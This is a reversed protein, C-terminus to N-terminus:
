IEDIWKSDPEQAGEERNRQIQKSWHEGIYQSTALLDSLGDKSKLGYVCFSCVKKVFDSDIFDDISPPLDSRFYRHNSPFVFLSPFCAATLSFGYVTYHIGCGIYRDCISDVPMGFDCPSITINVHRENKARYVDNPSLKGKEAVLSRVKPPFYIIYPKIFDPVDVTGNSMVCMEKVFGERRLVEVKEVAKKLIPSLLPEGGLIRIMRIKGKPHKRIEACLHDIHHENMFLHNRKIHFLVENNCLRNCHRCKLNCQHTIDVEVIWDTEKNIRRELNM